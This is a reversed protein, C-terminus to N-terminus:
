GPFVGAKKLYDLIDFFSKYEIATTGNARCFDLLDGRAFIIDSEALACIDSLGDGIFVVTYDSRNQGTIERIRSGKCCGCRECGDNEYPFEIVFHNDRVYAHNSYYPIEQLGNKKLIYDIYLDAGDSVIYFPIDHEKATHYFQTAGERLSYGDLFRYVEDESLTMMAAEERLCERSSVKGEKWRQVLRINEGESFRMYLGHGVDRSTFTGDFDCFVIPKKDTM